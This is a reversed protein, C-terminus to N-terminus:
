RLVAMGRQGTLELYAMEALGFNANQTLSRAYEDFLMDEYMDGAFSQEILGSRQVTSRMSDVLTKVLFYELESCQKYLESERDITAGPPLPAARSLEPATEFHVTPENRSAPESRAAPESPAPAANRNAASRLAEEFSQMDVASKERAAMNGGILSPQLMNPTGTMGLSRLDM